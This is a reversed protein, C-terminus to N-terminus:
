LYNSLVEVAEASIAVHGAENPHTGDGYYAAKWYKQASNTSDYCVEHVDIVPYGLSKIWAINLLRNTEETGASYAPTPTVLIPVVRAALCIEIFRLARDREKYIVGATGITDNSTEPQYVVHTPSLNALHTEVFTEYLLSTGGPYGINAYSVDKGQEVLATYAKHAWGDIQGSSGTGLMISDGVFLISKGRSRRRAQIIIRQYQTDNTGTWATSFGSPTTIGDGGHLAAYYEHDGCSARFAQAVASSALSAYTMPNSGNTGVRAMVLPFRGGDVRPISSLPIWDSYTVSPAAVSGADLTISTSGSVTVAVFGNQAGTADTVNYTTGNIIPQLKSANTDSRETKAVLAGILTCTSANANVFVLRVSDFDDPMTALVSNTFTFAGGVSYLTGIPWLTAISTDKAQYLAALEAALDQLQNDYTSADEYVFTGLAVLSTARANSVDSVWEPQWLANTGTVPYEQYSETGIYRIKM